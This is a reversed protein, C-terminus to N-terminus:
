RRQASLSLHTGDNCPITSGVWEPKSERMDLTFERQDSSCAQRLIQASPCGNDLLVLLKAGEEAVQRLVLKAQDVRLSTNQERMQQMVQQTLANQRKAVVLRRALFVNAALSLLLLVTIVIRFALSSFLRRYWPPPPTSRPQQEPPHRM